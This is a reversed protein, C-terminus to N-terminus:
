FFVWVGLMGVGAAAYMMQFITILKNEYKAIGVHEDKYLAKYEETLLKSGDSLKEELIRLQEFWWKLLESYRNILRRWLDCIIVGAILLLVLSLRKGWDAMQVDKMVFAIVGFIAANVSLYISTVSQRREALKNVQDLFLPYEHEPTM